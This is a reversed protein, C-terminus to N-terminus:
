SFRVNNNTENRSSNSSRRQQNDDYPQEQRRLNGNQRNSSTFNTELNGSNHYVENPNVVNSAGLSHGRRYVSEPNSAPERATILPERNLTANSAGNQQLFNPIMSQAFRNRQETTMPSISSRPSPLSQKQNEIADVSDAVRRWM